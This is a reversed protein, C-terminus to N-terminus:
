PRSRSAARGRLIRAMSAESGRAKFRAAASTAAHRNADTDNACVDVGAFGDVVVFFGAAWFDVVPDFGFGLGEVGAAFFGAFGTGGGGGGGGGATSSMPNITM